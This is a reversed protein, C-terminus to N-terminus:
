CSHAPLCWALLMHCETTDKKQIRMTQRWSPCACVRLVCCRCACVCACVCVFRLASILNMLTHRQQSTARPLDFPCDRLALSRRATLTITRQYLCDSPPVKSNSLLVVFFWMSAVCLKAAPTCAVVAAAPNRNLAACAACMAFSYASYCFLVFVSARLCNLPHSSTSRILVAHLCTFPLGFCATMVIMCLFTQAVIFGNLLIMINSGMARCVDNGKFHKQTSTCCVNALILSVINTLGVTGTVTKAMLLHTRHPEPLGQPVTNLVDGGGDEARTSGCCTASTSRRYVAAWRV